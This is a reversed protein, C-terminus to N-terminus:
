VREMNEPERFRIGFQAGKERRVELQGQLQHETLQVVLELGLSECQRIDLGERLGEGNDDVGMEIEGDANHRLIVRIEGEREGPFAHKLANSILENMILGCPVASDISVFVSEMDMKLAVAGPKKSQSKMIMGALDEIYDKLDIRSLNKAQYLKQHVLAMSKIRSGTDKFMELVKEDKIRESQLNLLGIIVQMNNKTRHYLERLLVEKERLSAKLDDEAQKRETIDLFTVVAGAVV